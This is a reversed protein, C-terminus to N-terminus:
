RKGRATSTRVWDVEESSAFVVPPYLVYKEDEEDWSPHFPYRDSCSDYVPGKKSTYVNMHEDGTKNLFTFYKRARIYRCMHVGSVETLNGEAASTNYDLGSNSAFVFSRAVSEYRSQQLDLKKMANSLVGETAINAFGFLVLAIVLAYSYIILQNAGM